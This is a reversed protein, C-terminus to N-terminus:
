EMAPLSINSSISFGPGKIRPCLRDLSEWGDKPPNGEKDIEILTASAGSASTAGQYVAEAQKKTRGYGSFYIIAIKAM